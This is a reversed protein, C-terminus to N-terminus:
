SMSWPCVRLVPWSSRIGVPWQSDCVQDGSAVAFRLEGTGVLKLLDTEWGYDFNIELNEDTFYGKEVAVYFPAFQVNPIFGMAVTIPTVTPVTPTDTPPSATLPTACGGPTLLAIVALLPLLKKM